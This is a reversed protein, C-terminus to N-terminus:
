AARMLEAELAPPVRCGAEGPRPGWDRPWAGQTWVQRISSPPASCGGGLDIRQEDDFLAPASTTSSAPQDLWGKGNLWTAPNRWAVDNPKAQRYRRLGTVLEDFAVADSAVVKAFAREATGRSVKHPYDAYWRDFADPPFQHKRDPRRPRSAPPGALPLDNAHTEESCLSSSRNGERGKEQSGLPLDIPPGGPSKQGGEPSGSPAQLRGSPAPQSLDLGDGEIPKAGESRGGPPRSSRKAIVRSGPNLRRLREVADAIVGEIEATDFEYGHKKANGAGSAKRQVLKEIWGELAKEAVVPHYLRGDDAKIWGRLAAAKVKRWTKVDRGFEALRALATDDDPISAAPVQHYSKLWLTVGARWAADDSCAHFESGFLRVIDVPMYPFDRLDCEPPTLPEKM